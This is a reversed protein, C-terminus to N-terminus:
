TENYVHSFVSLRLAGCGRHFLELLLGRLDSSHDFIHRLVDLWSGLPVDDRVSPDVFPLGVNAKGLSRLRLWGLMWSLHVVGVDDDVVNSGLFVLNNTHTQLLNAVVILVHVELKLSTQLFSLVEHNDVVVQVLEPKISVSLDLGELAEADHGFVTFCAYFDVEFLDLDQRNRVLLQPLQVFTRIWLALM